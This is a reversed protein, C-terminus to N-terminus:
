LYQQELLQIVGTITYFLEFFGSQLGMGTSLGTIVTPHM